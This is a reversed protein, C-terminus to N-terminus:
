LSGGETRPGLGRGAAGLIYEAALRGTSEIDALAVVEAATHMYRLPISLLGTKVGPGSVAVADSNTGTGGPMVETQYPIGGARATGFLSATIEKCLIPSVGIMPGKFFEGCKEKPSDPTLAFSVDFILAQTPAAAFAGAGANKFGLEESLSFLATVGIEPRRKRLLELCYLVATIGARNDFAKGTVLGGLLEAPTRSLFVPDGPAVLACAEDRGFGIDVALESPEPVKKYEDGGAPHPPRCCFVGHLTERGHVRVEHGLLVRLDPGGSRGVRLFGDADVATVMFGIEDLHAELLIHEGGPAAPFFPAVIGGLADYHAAPCSEKVLALAAHAAGEDGGAICDEGALTFLVSRIDMPLVM